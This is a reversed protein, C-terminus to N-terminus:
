KGGHPSEKWCFAHISLAELEHYHALNGAFSGFDCDADFALSPAIKSSDYGDVFATNNTLKNLIKYFNCSVTQVGGSHVNEDSM